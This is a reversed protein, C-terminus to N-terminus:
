AHATTALNAGNETIKLMHITFISLLFNLWIQHLATVSEVIRGSFLAFPEAGVFEDNKTICL